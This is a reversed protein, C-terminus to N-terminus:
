AWTRFPDLLASVFPLPSLTGEAASQRHEYYYAVHVLIWQRIAAPVDGPEEGYGETGERSILGRQLDHEALQTCSLILTSILDDDATSEVRLHLKAEDLTVAPLATSVDVSM